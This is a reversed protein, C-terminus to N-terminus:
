VPLSQYIKLRISVLDWILEWDWIVQGWSLVLIISFMGAFDDNEPDIDADIEDWIVFGASDIPVMLEPGTIDLMINSNFDWRDEYATLTIDTLRTNVNALGFLFKV